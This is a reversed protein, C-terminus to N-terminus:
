ARPTLRIVPIERDTKTAYGGFRPAAAVIRAWEREREEGHLERATAPVSRGELEVTVADPHAAVNHYWAPHRAAGNASAVVVWSGDEGPFWAVPTSRPEGTSRGPVTLVLLHMGMAEGGQRARRMVFRNGWRMLGGPQRAGYTGQAATFSM